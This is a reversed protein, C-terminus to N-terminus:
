FKLFFIFLIFKLKKFYLYCERENAIEIEEEQEINSVLDELEKKNLQM